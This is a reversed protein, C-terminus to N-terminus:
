RQPLIIKRKEPDKQSRYFIAVHGIIGVLTSDTAREVADALEKKQDKEKFEIFKVKILEHKELAEDAAKLVSPTIGKQGIFVLPKLKHAQGKLYKKQYGKMKKKSERYVM